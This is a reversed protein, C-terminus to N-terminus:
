QKKDQTDIPSTKNKRWAIYKRLVRGLGLEEGMKNIFEKRAACNCSPDLYLARKANKYRDKTIGLSEFFSELVDGAGVVTPFSSAHAPARDLQAAPGLEPGHIATPVLPSMSALAETIDYLKARLAVIEDHSKASTMARVVDNRQERLERAKVVRDVNNRIPM